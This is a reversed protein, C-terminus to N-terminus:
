FFLRKTEIPINKIDLMILFDITKFDHDIAPLSYVKAGIELYLKFLVPLEAAKDKLNISQLCEFGPEVPILHNTAVYGNNNLYRYFDWGEEMKESPISSCGFLYRRGSYNIYRAVAKWLMYLVRGNRHEQHICARGLEVSNLLIKSPFLHISFERATYFGTGYEAMECDQIRYTGIINGTLNNIVILHDCYADFEDKDLRLQEPPLKSNGMELHFIQFRLRLAEEVEQLNQALRVTYKKTSFNVAEFKKSTIDTKVAVSYM